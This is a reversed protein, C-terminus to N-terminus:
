INEWDEVAKEFMKFLGDRKRATLIQGDFCIRFVARGIGNHSFLVYKDFYKIREDENYKKVTEPKVSPLQLKEGRHNFIDMINNSRSFSIDWVSGM